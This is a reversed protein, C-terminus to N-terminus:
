AHAIKQKARLLRQSLTPEAVLFARAIEGTSLGGVTRLTLAVRSEMALAPHCCTFLLRLRDDPIEHVDDGISELEVIQAAAATKERGVRERRLRDIARNRATTVIWAE